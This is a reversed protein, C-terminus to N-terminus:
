NTSGVVTKAKAMEALTARVGKLVMEYDRGYGIGALADEGVVARAIQEPTRM